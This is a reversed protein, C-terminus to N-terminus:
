FTTPIFFSCGLQAIFNNKMELNVTGSQVAEIYIYSRGDFRIAMWRNFAARVGFGFNSTYHWQYKEDVVEGKPITDRTNTWGGGAVIFLDFNIIKNGMFNIKGYLPSIAVDLNGYLTIRSIDVDASYKNILLFYDSKVDKSGLLDEEDKALAPAYAFAGELSFVETFHFGANIGGIYRQVFPDNTVFGLFPTIEGRGSKLFNKRQIVKILRKKKLEHPLIIEQKKRKQKEVKKKEVVAKSEPPSPPAKEEVNMIIPKEAEETIPPAEVETELDAEEKEEETTAEEEGEEEEQLLLMNLFYSNLSLSSALTDIPLLLISCASIIYPIYKFM